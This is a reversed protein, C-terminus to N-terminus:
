LRTGPAESGKVSPQSGKVSRWWKVKREAEKVRRLPGETDALRGTMGQLRAVWGLYFNLQAYLSQKEHWSIWFDPDRTVRRRRKLLGAEHLVRLITRWCYPVRGKRRLMEAGEEPHARKAAVIRGEDRASLRQRGPGRSLDEGADAQRILRLVTNGHAGSMREAAARGHRRACEVIRLRGEERTPFRDLFERYRGNMAPM